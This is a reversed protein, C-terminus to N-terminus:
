PEDLSDSRSSRIVGDGDPEIAAPSISRIPEVAWVAVDAIAVESTLTRCRQEIRCSAIGRSRPTCSPLARFVANDHAAEEAVHLIWPPSCVASVRRPGSGMVPPVERRTFPRLYGPARIHTCVTCVRAHRERALLRFICRPNCEHSPIDCEREHPVERRPSEEPKGRSSTSM